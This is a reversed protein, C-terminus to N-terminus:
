VFLTNDLSMKLNQVDHRARDRRITHLGNEMFIYKVYAWHEHNANRLLDESTKLHDSITERYSLNHGYFFSTEIFQKIASFLESSNQGDTHKASTPENNEISDYFKNLLIEFATM